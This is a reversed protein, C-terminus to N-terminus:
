HVSRKQMTQKSALTFRPDTADGKLVREATYEGVAPGHKFGHGSGGGCLWVNEYGPHRDIVFDGNSTNEYQCVRAEALPAGRMGPFREELFARAEALADAGPVREGSDPDFEPGHQDNAVKLGRGEIDPMGYFGQGFDLWTPLAPASFRTDGKPVGFFFVPQRTPFIRGALARPAVKALWPGCALVFAGARLAEGSATRLAELRGEGALPEVAAVQYEVGRRIADAVVAQVARRALLAGSEPELIASGGDIVAIQPYRKRLEREDLREHPIQSAELARLSAIANADERKTMWLVGTRQFLEPRGVEGFFAKWKALSRWSFRTYTEDQGYSMRIVRSEGGSSARANAPGYQDVLLVSRGAARLQWATWAGFVGAGVVIVDWSKGAASVGQGGAAAAVGRLALTSVGLTGLFTRRDSRRARRVRAIM